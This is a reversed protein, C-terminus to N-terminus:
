KPLINGNQVTREQSPTLPSSGDTSIGTDAKLEDILTMATMLESNLYDQMAKMLYDSLRCFFVMIPYINAVTLNEYFLKAREKHHEGDYKKPKIFGFKLPKALVALVNHINENSKAPDKLFTMLDVYQGGTINQMQLEVFFRKGKLWFHTKVKPRIKDLDKLFQIQNLATRKDALTLDMVAKYTTGSLMAIIETDKDIQDLFEDGQIEQVAFYTKLTVEHWGKPLHLGM